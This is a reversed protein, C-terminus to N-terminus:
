GKVSGINLGDKIYQIFIFVIILPPLAILTGLAMIQGWSIGIDSIYLSTAVSITRTNMDTLVFALIFDNWSVRFSFLGATILGPVINPLIIKTFLQYYNCGDIFAAEEIEKPIQLFFSYLVFIAFPLNIATYLFTLGMLSNTLHWQSWLVYVPVVLVALPVSRLLLIIWAIWSRGKFNFRVLGYAAMSGFILTFITSFCGVIFSNSLYSTFFGDQLITSYNHLSPLFLSFPNGNFIQNDSKFSTVFITLVPFLFFFLILGMSMFILPSRQSNFM